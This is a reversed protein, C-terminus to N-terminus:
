VLVKRDNVMGFVDDTRCFVTEQNRHVMEVTETMVELTHTHYKRAM